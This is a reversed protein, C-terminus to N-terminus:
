IGMFEHFHSKKESLVDQGECIDVGIGNINSQHPNSLLEAFKPTPTHGRDKQSPDFQDVKAKRVKQSGLFSELSEFAGKCDQIQQSKITMWDMQMTVM